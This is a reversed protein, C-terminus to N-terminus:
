ENLELWLRAVAEEPSNCDLEIGDIDIRKVRTYGIAYWRGNTRYLTDFGDGCAEILESLTPIYYANDFVGLYNECRDDLDQWVKVEGNHWYKGYRSSSQPFGADKLEKALEYDM